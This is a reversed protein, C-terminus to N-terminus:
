GFIRAEDRRMARYERRILALLNGGAGLRLTDGRNSLHECVQKWDGHIWERVYGGQAPVMFERIRRTGTFTDDYEVVVYNKSQSQSIKTRM